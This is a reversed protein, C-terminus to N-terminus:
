TRGTLYALRDLGRPSGPDVLDRRSGGEVAALQLREQISAILQRLQRKDDCTQPEPM